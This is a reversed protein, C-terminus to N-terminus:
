RFERGALNAAADTQGFRVGARIQLADARDRPAVAITVDDFPVLVEIVLPTSPVANAM